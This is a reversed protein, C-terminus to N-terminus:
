LIEVECRVGSARAIRRDGTVLPCALGEALAVYSADYPTLNPRLEWIRSALPLHPYRVLTLESLAELAAEAQEQQIEGADNLRRLASIVELDVLHPAHLDPDRRLRDRARHGDTGHDAVALALMSADVVIM